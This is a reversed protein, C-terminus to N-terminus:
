YLVRKVNSSPNRLMIKIVYKGRYMVSLDLRRRCRRLPFCIPNVSGVVLLIIKMSYRKALPRDSVHM